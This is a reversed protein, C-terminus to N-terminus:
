IRFAAFGRSATHHGAMDVGNCFGLRVMEFLCHHYAVEADREGCLTDLAFVPAYAALM